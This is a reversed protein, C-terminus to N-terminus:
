WKNTGTSQCHKNYKQYNNTAHNNYKQYNNTAHNNHYNNDNVVFSHCHHNKNNYKQYNNTTHNIRYKSDTVVSFRIQLSTATQYVQELCESCVGAKWEGSCFFFFLVRSIHASIFNNM